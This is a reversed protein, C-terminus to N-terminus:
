RRCPSRPYGHRYQPQCGESSSMNSLFRMLEEHIALPIKMGWEFANLYDVLPQRDSAVLFEEFSLPEMHMYSIRGVPMSFTHKEIVFELLSGAAIVPLQPMDEALWRLKALM